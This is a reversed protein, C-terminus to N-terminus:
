PVLRDPGRFCLMAEKITIGLILMTIRDLGIGFGGHPAIGYKFFDLYFRVDKDLGKEQAQKVLQDYRHERKAGSTIEVGRYILDYGQPNGQADRAHYFPRTAKDYGVVFLFESNFKEIALQNALKEGEANLDTQEVEPVYYNYRQKLEQYIDKLNMIPFKGVPLKLEIAFVRKIDAGYKKQLKKFAYRIMAEEFRMVDIVSEVNYFELDFGVFETGHRNSRSKEARFVPGCEFVKEFGAAIAMQKYFQPSQALYAKKDFYNSIEFLDSGSESATAILKPTHIEVFGHKLLFERFYNTLVTQV